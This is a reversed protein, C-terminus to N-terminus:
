RAVERVAFDQAGVDGFVRRVADASDLQLQRDWSQVVPWAKPVKTGSATFVDAYPNLSRHFIYVNDSADVAFLMGDDVFRVIDDDADFRVVNLHAILVCSRKPSAEQFLISRSSTGRVTWAGVHKGRCVLTTYMASDDAHRRSFYDLYYEDHPPRYVFFDSPGTYVLFPEAGDWQTLFQECGPHEIQPLVATTTLIKLPGCM